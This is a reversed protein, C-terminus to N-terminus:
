GAGRSRFELTRAEQWPLDELPVFYGAMELVIDLPRPDLEVILRDPRIEIVGPRRVLNDLLFTPSSESFGRLWRSWQRLLGCCVLALTLRTQAHGAPGHGLVELASVLIERSESLASHQKGAVSEEAPGIEQLSTPAPFLTNLGALEEMILTPTGMRETWLSSWEGVLSAIEEDGNLVKGFPWLRKSADGAVLMNKGNGEPALSFLYLEPGELLRQGALARFWSKEFSSWDLCAEVQGALDEARGAWGDRATALLLGPDAQTGEGALTSLIVLVFTSLQESQPNEEKHLRAVLAPLRMDLIARSLLLAGAAQSEIRPYQAPRPASSSGALKQLMLSGSEGLGAIFQLTAAASSLQISSQVGQIGDRPLLALAGQWDGQRLRLLWQDTSRAQQSMAWAELLRPLVIGPLSDGAWEPHRDVLAALLRLRNASSKPQSADLHLDTELVSLLDALLQKQRATPSGATRFAAPFTHAAPPVQSYGQLTGLLKEQLYTRDLWDLGSLAQEIRSKNDTVQRHLWGKGLFTVMVNAVEQALSRPDRWDVVPLGGSLYIEFAQQDSISGTWWDLRRALDLAASFLPRAADVTMSGAHSGALFQDLGGPQQLLLGLTPELMGQRYLRALIVPVDERRDLLVSLVAEGLSRERLNFFATYYWHRWAEGNLLDIIFQAVYEAQSAFRVVESPDETAITRVLAKVLSSGMRAALSADSTSGAIEGAMAMGAGSNSNSAGGDRLDLVVRNSVQRVVYVSPDDGFVQDLATSLAEALQGKVLRDLRTAALARADPPGIAQLHYHFHGIQGDM